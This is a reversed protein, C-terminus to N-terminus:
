GEKNKADTDDPMFRSMWISQGILFVLTMGLLGFMKFNVWTAEAYNYAVYINTMGAFLFYAVWAFNLQTWVKDPLNFEETSVSQMMRKVFPHEGVFHSVLFVCAFAWYLVTPKWKFFIPNDLYLSIAGFVVVLAASSLLMKSVTKKILWTLLVQVSIAVMIVVMALNIDDTIVYTAFFAIVPLFDLLAQMNHVKTLTHGEGPRHTLPTALRLRTSRVPIISLLHLQHHSTQAESAPLLLTVSINCM